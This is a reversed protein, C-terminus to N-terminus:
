ISFPYVVPGVTCCLSSYEIDQSLGYPFSYLYFTYIHVVSDSQQVASVNYTLEVEFKKFFLFFLLNIWTTAPTLIEKRKLTSYYEMSHVSWMKKKILKDRLLCKAQKWM